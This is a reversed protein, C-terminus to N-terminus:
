SAPRVCRWTSSGAREDIVREYEDDGRVRRKEPEDCGSAVFVFVLMAVVASRVSANPLFKVFRGSTWNVAAGRVLAWWFRQTLAFFGAPQYREALISPGSFGRARPTM